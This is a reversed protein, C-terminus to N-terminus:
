KIAEVNQLIQDDFRFGSIFTRVNDDWISMYDQMHALYRQHLVVESKAAQTRQINECNRLRDNIAIKDEDCMHVIRRSETEARLRYLELTSYQWSYNLSRRLTPIQLLTM